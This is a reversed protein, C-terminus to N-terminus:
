RVYGRNQTWIKHTPTCVIEGYEHEVRLLQGFLPKKLWRVIPKWEMQQTARNCSLVLLNLRNEVIDGIRLLGLNTLVLTGYAFCEDVLLADVGTQEFYVVDDKNTADLAEQLKAEVREKIKELRKVIRNGARSDGEEDAVAQAERIGEEIEELEAGIFENVIAPSMPIKEIHKQSLVTMQYEITTM